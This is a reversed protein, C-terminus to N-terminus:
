DGFALTLTRLVADLKLAQERHLTALLAHREAVQASCAQSAARQERQAATEHAAIRHEYTMTAGAIILVAITRLDVISLMLM